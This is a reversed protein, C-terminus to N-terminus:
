HDTGLPDAGKELPEMPMPRSLLECCVSEGQMIYLGGKEFCLTDMDQIQGAVMTSLLTSEWSQGLIEYASEQSIPTDTVTYERYIARQLYLPFGYGPPSLEITETIKDCTVGLNSSSGSLNISKRGFLISIEQWSRGTYIKRGISSPTILTSQYWTQGYIEGEAEVGKMYLGYDEIGSVLIQGAKVSQGIETLNMGELVVSETIIGDRVAVLNCPYNSDEQPAESKELALVTLKGGKPNVSVWSLEPIRNLLTYRLAQPDINRSRCWIGAGEEQLVYRIRDEIYPDDIDIQINWILSELLFTLCLGLLLSLILFPRSLAKQFDQSLGKTKLCRAECYTNTAIDLIKKGQKTEATFRFSFPDRQELNWIKIGAKNLNNLCRPIDAGEITYVGTGRLYARLDM